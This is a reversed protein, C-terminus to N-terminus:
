NISAVTLVVAFCSGVRTESRSQNRKKKKKLWPIKDFYGPMVLYRGRGTHFQFRTKGDAPGFPAHAGHLNVSSRKIELFIEPFLNLVAIAALSVRGSRNHDSQSEVLARIVVAISM